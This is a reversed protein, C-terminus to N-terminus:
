YTGGIAGDTGAAQHLSVRLWVPVEPPGGLGGGGFCDSGGRWLLRSCQWDALVAAEQVLQRASCQTLSEEGEMEEKVEEKM